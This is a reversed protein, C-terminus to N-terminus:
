LFLGPHNRDIPSHNFTPAQLTSTPRSSIALQQLSTPPHAPLSQFNPTPHQNPYPNRLWYAAFFLVPLQRVCTRTDTSVISCNHGLLWGMDDGPTGGCWTAARTRGLGGAPPRGVLRPIANVWDRATQSNRLVRLVAVCPDVPARRYKSSSEVSFQIERGLATRFLTTCAITARRNESEKGDLLARIIADHEMMKQFNQKEGALRPPQPTIKILQWGRVRNIVVCPGWTTTWMKELCTQSACWVAKCALVLFQLAFSAVFEEDDSAGQHNRTLRKTSSTSEMTQRGGLVHPLKAKDDSFPQPCRHQQSDCRQLLFGTDSRRGHRNEKTGAGLSTGCASDRERQMPM